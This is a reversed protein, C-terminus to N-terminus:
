VFVAFRTVSSSVRRVFFHDTRYSIFHIAWRRAKPGKQALIRSLPVYIQMNLGKFGSNFEM